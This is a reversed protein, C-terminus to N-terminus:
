KLLTTKKSEIVIEEKSDINEEIEIRDIVSGQANKYLWPYKALAEKKRRIGKERQQDFWDDFAELMARRKVTMENATAEILSQAEANYTSYYYSLESDIM